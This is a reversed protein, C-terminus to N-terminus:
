GLWAISTIYIMRRHDIILFTVLARGDAISVTRHAYHSGTPESPERGYGWPDQAIEAVADAVAMADEYSLQAFAARAEPEFEYDHM